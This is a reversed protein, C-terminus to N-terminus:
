AVREINGEYRIKCLAVPEPQDLVAAVGYAGRIVALRYSRKAVKSRHTKERSVVDSHTLAAADKGIMRDELTEHFREPVPTTIAPALWSFIIYTPFTEPKLEPLQRVAIVMFVSIAM